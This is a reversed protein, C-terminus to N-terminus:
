EVFKPGTKYEWHVQLTDLKYERIKHIIGQVINPSTLAAWVLVSNVVSPFWLSWARRHHIREGGFKSCHLTIVARSKYERDNVFYLRQDAFIVKCEHFSSRSGGRLLQSHPLFVGRHVEKTKHERKSTCTVPPTLQSPKSTSSRSKITVLMGVLLATLWTECRFLRAKKVAGRKCADIRLYM